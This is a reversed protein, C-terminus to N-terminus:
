QRHLMNGLGHWAYFHRRDILLAHKFSFMANDLDDNSVHEHESLACVHTCNQNSQM